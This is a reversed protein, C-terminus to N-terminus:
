GTPQLAAADPQRNQARRQNAVAGLLDNAMQPSPVRGGLSVVGDPVDLSLFQSINPLYGLRRCFIGAMSQEVNALLKDDSIAPTM